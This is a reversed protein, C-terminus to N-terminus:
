EKVWSDYDFYGAFLPLSFGKRSIWATFPKDIIFPKPLKKSPAGRIMGMVVKAVAKAGVEDMTFEIEKKATTLAFDEGGEKDPLMSGLLWSIDIEKKIDICPFMLYEPRIVTNKLSALYKVIKLILNLKDEALKGRHLYVTTEPDKTSLAVTDKDVQIFGKDLRAAIYKKRLSDKKGKEKWEVLLKMYAALGIDFDDPKMHGMEYKKLFEAFKKKDMTAIFHQEKIKKAESFLDDTDFTQFIKEYKKYKWRADESAFALRAGALPAILAYPAFMQTMM